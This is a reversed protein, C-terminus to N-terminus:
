LSTVISQVSSTGLIQTPPSSVKIWRHHICNIPDLHSPLALSPPYLLPPLPLIWCGISHDNSMSQMTHCIFIGNIYQMRGIQPCSWHLFRWTDNSPSYLLLPDSPQYTQLLIGIKPISMASMFSYHGYQPCPSIELTIWTDTLPDYCLSQIENNFAYWKADYVCSVRVHPILTQLLALSAKPFRYMPLHSWISQHIDYTDYMTQEYANNHIAATLSNHATTPLKV